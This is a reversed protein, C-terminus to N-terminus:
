YCLLVPIFSCPMNEKVPKEQMESVGADTENSITNRVQLLQFFCLQSLLSVFFQLHFTSINVNQSFQLM